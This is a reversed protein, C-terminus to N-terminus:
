AEAQNGSQDKTQWLDIGVAKGNPLRKALGILLLGRGCGIDLARESGKLNLSDLVGDRIKLKFVRSGLVMLVATFLWAAGMFLLAIKMADPIGPVFSIHLCGVGAVALCLIVGPADIGYNAKMELNHVM